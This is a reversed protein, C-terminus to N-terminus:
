RVHKRVGLDLRVHEVGKAAHDVGDRANVSAWHGASVRTSAAGPM